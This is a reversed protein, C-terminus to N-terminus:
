PGFDCITKSSSTPSANIASIHFYQHHYLRYNSPSFLIYQGFTFSRINGSSQVSGYWDWVKIVNDGWWVLSGLVTRLAGIEQRRINWVSWWIMFWTVRGCYGRLPGTCNIVSQCAVQHNLECERGGLIYSLLILPVFHKNIISLIYVFLM